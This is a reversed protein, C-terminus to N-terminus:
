EKIMFKAVIMRLFNGVVGSIVIIIWSVNTFNGLIDLVCRFDVIFFSVIMFILFTPTLFNLFAVERRVSRMMQEPSNIFLLSIVSLMWGFCVHIIGFFHLALLIIGAIWGLYWIGTILVIVHNIMCFITVGFPYPVIGMQQHSALQYGLESVILVFILFAIIM